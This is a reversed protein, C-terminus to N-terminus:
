VWQTIVGPSCTSLWSPETPLINPKSLDDLSTLAKGELEKKAKEQAKMAVYDQSMNIVYIHERSGIAKLLCILASPANRAFLTDLGDFVVGRFCDSLQLCSFSITIEAQILQERHLPPKKRQRAQCVWQAGFYVVM